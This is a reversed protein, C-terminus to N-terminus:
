ATGGPTVTLPSSYRHTRMWLSRGATALFCGCIRQHCSEIDGQTYSIEGPDVLSVHHHLKDRSAHNCSLIRAETEKM